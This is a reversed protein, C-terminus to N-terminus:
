VIVIVLTTMIKTSFCCYYYEGLFQYNSDFRLSFLLSEKATVSQAGAFVEKIQEQLHSTTLCTAEISDKIVHSPYDPKVPSASFNNESSSTLKVIGEESIHKVIEEQVRTQEEDQIYIESEKREKNLQMGREMSGRMEMKIDHKESMEELPVHPSPVFREEKHKSEEEISVLCPRSSELRQGKESKDSVGRRGGSQVLPKFQAIM